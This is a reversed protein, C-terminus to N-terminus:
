TSGDNATRGPVAFRLVGTPEGAMFPNVWASRSQGYPMKNTFVQYPIGSFIVLVTADDEKPIRYEGTRTRRLSYGKLREGVTATWFVGDHVFEIAYIRDNPGPLPQRVIKAFREYVAEQDALEVGPIFFTPISNKGM